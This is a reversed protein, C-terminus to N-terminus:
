RRGGKKGREGNMFKLIGKPIESAFQNILAVINKIQEFLDQDGPWYKKMKQNLLPDESNIIKNLIIIVVLLDDVLGAVPIFDPIVDLPSILYAMAFAVLGKKNTPIDKDLIIKILMYVLDPLLILYETFKGVWGGTQKDLKGEKVWKFIKERIKKYFDEYKKKKVQIESGM